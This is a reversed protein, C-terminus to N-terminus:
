VPRDYGKCQRQDVGGGAACVRACVCACVRAHASLEM